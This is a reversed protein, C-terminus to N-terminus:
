EVSLGIPDKCVSQTGRDSLEAPHSKWHRNFMKNVKHVCKSSTYLINRTWCSYFSYRWMQFDTVNFSVAAVKQGEAEWSHCTVNHCQHPVAPCFNGPFEKFFASVKQESTVLTQLCIICTDFMRFARVTLTQFHKQGTCSLQSGAVSHTFAVM